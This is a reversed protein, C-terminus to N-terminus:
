IGFFDRAFADKSSAGAGLARDSLGPVQVGVRQEEAPPATRAKLAEAQRTLTESDNGTLFLDADDKSIGHEAAISQRMADFRAAALDAELSDRQEVLKELETKKADELEQLKTAAEANGKARTEWTRAHDKWKDLEAKLSEVTEVEPTEVVEATNVSDSM